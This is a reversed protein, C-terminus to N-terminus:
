TAVTPTDSREAADVRNLRMGLPSEIFDLLDVYRDVFHPHDSFLNSITRFVSRSQRAAQARMAVPDVDEALGRGIFLKNLARLAASSDGCAALGLRDGSLVTARDYPLVALNVVWLKEFANVVAMFDGLRLHKAQLAGIFRGVVFELEVRGPGTRMAELLGSNLWLIRKGFVRMLTANIGGDQVIYMDVSRTYGLRDAVGSITAYVDPFSAESVEVAGGKLRAELVNRGFWISGVVVAVVFLLAGASAIILALALLSVVVVATIAVVLRSGESPHLLDRQLSLSIQHRSPTGSDV